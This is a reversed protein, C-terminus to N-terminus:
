LYSHMTVLFLLRSETSIEVDVSKVSTDWFKSDSVSFPLDSLSLVQNPTMVYNQNGSGTFTVFSYDGTEVYGLTKARNGLGIAYKILDNVDFDASTCVVVAGTQPNKHWNEGYFNACHPRIDQSGTVDQQLNRFNYKLKKHAKHNNIDALGRSSEQYNTVAIVFLSALVFSMFMFVRKRNSVQRVSEKTKSPSGELPRGEFAISTGLM